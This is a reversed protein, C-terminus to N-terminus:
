AATNMDYLLVGANSAQIWLGMRVDCSMDWAPAKNKKTLTINGLAAGRFGDLAAPDAGDIDAPAGDLMGGPQTERSLVTRMHSTGEAGDAVVQCAVADAIVSGVVGNTAVAFDDFQVITREGLIDKALAELANRSGNQQFAQGMDVKGLETNGYLHERISRGVTLLVHVGPTQPSYRRADILKGRVLELWRSWRFAADSVLVPGADGALTTAGVDIAHGAAYSNANVMASLTLVGRIDLASSVLANSAVRDPDMGVARYNARQAADQTVEGGDYREVTVDASGTATQLLRFTESSWGMSRLEGGALEGLDLGYSTEDTPVKADAGEIELRPAAAECLASTGSQIIQSNWHGRVRALLPPALTGLASGM